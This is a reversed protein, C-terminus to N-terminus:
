FRKLANEDRQKMLNERVKVEADNLGSLSFNIKLTTKKTERKLIEMKELFKYISSYEQFKMIKKREQIDCEVNLKGSFIRSIELSNAIDMLEVEFFRQFHENDLNELKKFTNNVRIEIRNIVFDKFKSYARIYEIEQLFKYISTTSFNFTHESGISTTNKTYVGQLARNLHIFSYSDPIKKNFILRFYGRVKGTFVTNNNLTEEIDLIEQNVYKRNYEMSIETVELLEMKKERKTKKFILYTIKDSIKFEM